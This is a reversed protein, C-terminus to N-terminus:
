GAILRRGLEYALADELAGALLNPLRIRENLFRRAHFSVFTAATAVGAGLLATPLRPRHKKGAVSLATLAGTAARAALALPAVRDVKSLKDGILEVLAIAGFVPKWRPDTLLSKGRRRSRGRDGTLLAPPLSTRVGALAALGLQERLGYKRSSRGLM